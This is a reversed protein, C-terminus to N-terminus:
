ACRRGHVQPQGSGGTEKGLYLSARSREAPRCDATNLVLKGTRTRSIDLLDDIIRAQSKVTSQITEAVKVVAPLRSAEPLALLLQANVQILNLPHKLEHSMIALFEDKLQSAQAAATAEHVASTLALERSSDAQARATMDRAIKAYGNSRGRQMPTMIGSVFVRSGDKRLHWREDNARGNERAQRMEAAPAGRARDEPTFIIEFSKGLIEEDAYGFLREAGSSWSTFRGQEDLTLIAFDPMNEAILLMRERDIESNLEARHRNTIDVFTLVAGDIRDEATRYPVIRALLWRGDDASVEREVTNLSHFASAADAAIEPYDMKHTIDLLSRGLDTSIINFVSAASPAFRKIRMERDVFVTAIGSASMLNQLDDNIEATEEVKTKLENNVTILEENTSQLEEKSTELEETTSRLEENIAQLEENSARLDDVSTEYQAITEQLQQDKRQLEAELQHVVPGQEGAKLAQDDSGPRELSEDILLLQWDGTGDNRHAARAKVTVDFVQGSRSIKTAVAPVSDDGKSAQFLASRIAPRLEPQIAAFINQTPVGQAFRLYPEARLTHVIEGDPKVLISAPTEELLLRQHLDSVSEPSPSAASPAVRAKHELGGLPFRPLARVARTTPISKYIRNKKDVPVFLRSAADATESSGLFLYGGPRLAFHFMQLIEKQVERELYILLNRCSVLDLRSFPPDRLLNHQAFLVMERLSKRVTYHHDEKSMWKRLSAPPVDAIISEPYRGERGKALAHEDIDTAFLQIPRPQAGAEAEQCLLMLISYAEEGSSCGAVWARLSEGSDRERFFTPIALRELAEFAERDRFFNTVGILMDGLLATTESSHTELFQEYAPLHPLENVQLRREVRRLVTARKYHKFDHGTRTQLIGMINRLAKEAAEPSTPPLASIDSDQAPPLEIKQANRWIDLLRQPMETVPLVIDVKGTAIASVPMGDFEADNPSQALVVGGQEKVEGIGMSGDAGTGSLIVAIARERHAQALGRFFLDIVIQRGRDRELDTLSLQGDYMSLGHTPPIVYVHDREIHTVGAIQVVRMGTSRQLIEAASSEHKPSLHMVIVFAMGPTAPLGEFLKTLSALGGASAGLGVIPFPLRDSPPPQEVIDNAPNISGM